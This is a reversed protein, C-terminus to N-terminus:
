LKCERSLVDDFRFVACPGLEALPFPARITGTLTLLLAGYRDQKAVVMPTRKHLVAQEVAKEWYRWLKGQHLLFRHLELDREHKCEIFYRDTLKHGNPDVSCIDGAPKISRGKTLLVTARGGSIASRWFLDPDKGHSVWLSLRKCVEREWATGKHKGGGPKM